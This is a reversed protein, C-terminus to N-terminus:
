LDYALEQGKKEIEYLNHCLTEEFLIQAAAFECTLHYDRKVGELKEQMVEMKAANV